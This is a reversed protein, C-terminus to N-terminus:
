SSKGMLQKNLKDQILQAKLQKDLKDKSTMNGTEKGSKEDWKSRKEKDAIVMQKIKSNPDNKRESERRDYEKQQKEALQKYFSEPRWSSKNLIPDTFNTGTENIGFKEILKDYISPNRFQKNERMRSCPDYGYKRRKQLETAIKEQLKSSCKGKPESPIKVNGHEDVKGMFNESDSESDSNEVTVDDSIYLKYILNLFIFVLFTPLM